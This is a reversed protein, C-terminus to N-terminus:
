EEIEYSSCSGQRLREGTQGMGLDGVTRKRLEGVKKGVKSM